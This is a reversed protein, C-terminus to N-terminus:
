EARVSPAETTRVSGPEKTQDVRWPEGILTPQQHVTPDTVWSISGGGILCMTCRIYMM